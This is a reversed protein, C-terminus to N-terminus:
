SMRAATTTSTAPWAMLGGARGGYSLEGTHEFTETFLGDGGNEWLYCGERNACLVDLRGDADLDCLSATSPSKGLKVKCAAGPAFKGAATARFLVGGKEAPLLVDALSDGDFDAVLCAGLKGLKALEVGPAALATGAAKGAEDLVVLVPWSDGSVLLGSRGKTGVDLAALAVCATSVAGEFATRKDQPNKKQATLSPPKM